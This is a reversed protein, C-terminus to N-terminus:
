EGGKLDDWKIILKAAKRAARGCRDACENWGDRDLWEERQEDDRLDYGIIDYCNLSENDEEFFEYFEQAPKYSSTLSELRSMNELDVGHKMGIGIIGGVLAGCLSNRRTGGAFPALAKVLESNIEGNLFKEQLALNVAQSCAMTRKEALNNRAANEVEDLIKEEQNM